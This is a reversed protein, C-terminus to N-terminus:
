SGHRLAATPDVNSARRAPIWAALAAVALMIVVAAALSTPDNPKVGYLLKGALKTLILAAPLGVLIGLATMFLSQRLVLWQVNMRRAGLAMRIGIESIRRSVSFAMVGYLGIAALALAIVGFTTVLAAFLRETGLSRDVQDRETRIEAVPLNADVAAVARRVASAISLPAVRTRVVFVM